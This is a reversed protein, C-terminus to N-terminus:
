EVVRGEVRWPGVVETEDISWWSDVEDELFLRGGSGGDEFMGIPTPEIMDVGKGDNMVTTPSVSALMGFSRSSNDMGSEICLSVCIRTV